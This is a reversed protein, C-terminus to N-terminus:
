EPVFLYVSRHPQNEELGLLQELAKAYKYNKQVPESVQQLTQSGETDV